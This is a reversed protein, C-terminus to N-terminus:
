MVPSHVQVDFMDLSYAEEALIQVTGDANVTVTGSSAALLVCLMCHLFFHPPSPSFSLSLEGFYKQTKDTEYVTLLGPQLVAISPVHHPLIGFTGTTSSVDVQKVNVSDYFTQLFSLPSM